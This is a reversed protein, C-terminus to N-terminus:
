GDLDVTSLCLYRLQRDHAALLVRRPGAGRGTAPESLLGALEWWVGTHPRDAPAVRRGPGPRGAPGTRSPGDAAGGPLAGALGPDVVVTLDRAGTAATALADALLGGVREPAVDAHQRVPGVRAAGADDCLLGVATHVTPVAAPAGPDYPLAAQEVVLLLARRCGGPGRYAGALRLATFGGAAGQDCVAFALPDGPCLHSLYTATARGPRVDPVAFALVLLDVPQDPAVLDGVLAAAMEGYSHGSGNAIAEERLPFGYPRVLDSVYERLHPRHEPRGAIEPPGTFTRRAAARIALRGAGPGPPPGAAYGSV